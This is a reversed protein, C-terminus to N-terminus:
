FIADAHELFEHGDVDRFHAAWNKPTVQRPEAVFSVGQSTLVRHATRVDEVPFVVETAGALHPAAEAHGRTLGLLVTGCQLLVLQPEQTIVNLGLKETYLTLAKPLGRVGLMIASIQSLRFDNQM